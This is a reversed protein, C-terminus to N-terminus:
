KSCDLFLKVFVMFDHLSEISIDVQFTQNM